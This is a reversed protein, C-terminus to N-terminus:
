EDWLLCFPFFYKILDVFFKISFYSIFFVYGCLGANCVFHIDGNSATHYM